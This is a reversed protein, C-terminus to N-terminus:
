CVDKTLHHSKGTLIPPRKGRGVVRGTASAKKYGLLESDIAENWFEVCPAALQLEANRVYGKPLSKRFRVGLKEDITFLVPM